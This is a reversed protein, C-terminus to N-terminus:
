KLRVRLAMPYFHINDQLDKTYEYWGGGFDEYELIMGEELIPLNSIHDLKRQQSEYLEVIQKAENYTKQSIM